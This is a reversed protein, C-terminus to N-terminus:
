VGGKDTGANGVVQEAFHGVKEESGLLAGDQLEILVELVEKIPPRMERDGQLCRFALEAVLNMKKRTEVDSDYGLQRDVLDDLNGSQIRNVALTSLNIESRERCIDVAPKSSLLEALVVGFSYVDSRDTLQYSRHYDPDLYGPTGQPATSVHTAGDRPFLRSLGFDAIKVHFEADLLINETKVDRHVIPPDVAHLYGLASATEVAISLRRPWTLHGEAARPGHLHDAVTGNPVFEYVLLLERSRPSTCGYLSVLNQHRLCSLIVIENAFQEARKFNKEYLRKVAVTRGDRLTGKYVAGFGGDGVEMATDFANTAEHLEEYSFVQTQCPYHTHDFAKNFFPPRSISSHHSLLTSSSSCQQKQRLRLHWWFGIFSLISIFIIGAAISVGIIIRRNNKKRGECNSRCECSSDGAVGSCNSSAAFECSFCDKQKTWEPSFGAAILATEGGDEGGGISLKWHFEPNSYNRCHIPLDAINPHGFDGSYHLRYDKCLSLNNKLLFIDSSFDYDQKCNFFSEGSQLSISFSNFAFDPVPFEFDYLFICSRRYYSSLNIDHIIIAKDDYSINIIPYLYSTGKFHVTPIRNLCQIYHLGSCQNSSQSTFFPFEIDLTRQGCSFKQPPCSSFTFPIISHIITLFLPFFFSSSM